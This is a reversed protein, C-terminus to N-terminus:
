ENNIADVPKIRLARKTPVIGALGGSFILVVLATIANYLQFEFDAINHQRLMAGLYINIWGIIGIGAGMGLIGSILNIVISELLVLATIHVSKAGMVKRIAIEQTREKVVVLMMNGVGVVGSVLFCLSIFWIFGQILAFLVQFSSSRKSPNSIYLAHQDQDGLNLQRSLYTRIKKEVHIANQGPKLICIIYDVSETIQPLLARFFTNPLMVSGDDADATPELVGIVCVAVGGISIFHGVAANKGFIQTKIKSGLMCVPLKQNLDRRTFFRGGELELKKLEEYGMRVGLIASKYTKQGYGVADTHRFVPMSQEFANLNYALKDALDETLSVKGTSSYISMVRTSYMHFKQVMGNYFGVGGGQLLVLIIMAWMVGFGTFVTRAKHSKLSNFVEIFCQYGIM